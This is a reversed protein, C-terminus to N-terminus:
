KTMDVKAACASLELDWILVHGGWVEALFRGDPSLTITHAGIGGKWNGPRKLVLGSKWATVDNKSGGEVLDALLAKTKGDPTFAIQGEHLKPREPDLPSEKGSEINWVSYHTYLLSHETPHFCLNTRMTNHRRPVAKKRAHEKGKERNWVVIDGGASFALWRGDGSLAVNSNDAYYDVKGTTVTTVKKRTKVDFSHIRYLNGVTLDKGDPGYALFFVWGDTELRGIGRFSKADLFKVEKGVGAALTKGDRSLALVGADTDGYNGGGDLRESGLLLSNVESWTTTDWVTLRALGNKTAGGLFLLSSDSSFVASRILRLDSDFARVERTSKEQAAAAAFVSLLFLPAVLVARM